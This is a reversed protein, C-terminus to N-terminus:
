SITSLFTEILSALLSNHMINMHDTGPLIALQGHPLMRKMEVAHEPRIIDGDGVIVLAPATIGHIKEAPIDKFNLMRQVSKDHFSQLQEPHPAVKLYAEKLEEPMSQLSAHQMSEWFEPYMGDRKYNASIVVMKGMIEPHRIAIQLAITGGNSYGIFDAKPIKLYQLLAATDDASQEFSFPRDPIDATHGHGQQELAIVKHTKAFSEIVSGFTTGITSGGGHLLVLPTGAGHIEYYLKLGNVPAFGSQVLQTGMALNYSLLVAGFAGARVMSKKM